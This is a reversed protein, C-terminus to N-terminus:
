HLQLLVIEIIDLSPIYPITHFLRRQQSAVFPYTSELSLLERSIDLRNATQQYVFSLSQSSALVRKLYWWDQDLSVSAMTTHRCPLDERCQESEGRGVRRKVPMTADSMTGFLMVADVKGICLTSALLRLIVHIWVVSLQYASESM